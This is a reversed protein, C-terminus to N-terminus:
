VQDFSEFEDIEYGAKRALERLQEDSLNNIDIPELGPEM